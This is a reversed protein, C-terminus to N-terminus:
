PSCYNNNSNYIIYFTIKMLILYYDDIVQVSVFDSTQV